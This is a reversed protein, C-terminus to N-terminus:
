PLRRHKHACLLISRYRARYIKHANAKRVIGNHIMRCVKHRMDRVRDWASQDIDHKRQERDFMEAVLFSSIKVAAHAGDSPYVKFVIYAMDLRVSASAPDVRAARWLREWLLRQPDHRPDHQKKM